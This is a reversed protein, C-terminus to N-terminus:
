LVKYYIHLIVAYAEINEFQDASLDKEYLVPKFILHTVIDYSYIYITFIYMYM